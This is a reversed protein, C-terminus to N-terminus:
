EDVDPNPISEVIAPRTHRLHFISGDITKPNVNPLGAQVDRMSVPGHQMIYALVLRQSPTLKMGRVQTATRKKTFRYVVAPTQAARGTTRAPTATRRANRIPTNMGENSEDALEVQIRDQVPTGALATLLEPIDSADCSLVLRAKAM